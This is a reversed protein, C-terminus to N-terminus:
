YESKGKKENEDLTRTKEKKESKTEGLYRKMKKLAKKELISIQSKSLKIKISLEQLTLPTHNCLGYRYIIIEQERETLTSLAKHIIIKTEVSGLQMMAKQDMCSIEDIDIYDMYSRKLYDQIKKKIWYSVYTSLSFGREPDFKNIGIILGIVGEQFIDEDEELYSFKRHILYYVLNINNEVLKKLNKEKEKLLEKNIAKIEDIQRDIM